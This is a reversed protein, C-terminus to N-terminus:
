SLSKWLHILKRYKQFAYFGLVRVIQVSLDLRKYNLTNKIEPMFSAAKQQFYKVEEYGDEFKNLAVWAIHMYAAAFSRSRLYHYEQPASEFAANLISNFSLEMDSLRKKMGRPTSISLGYPNTRYYTLVERVVKFQYIASVRLWFDWDECAFPFKSFLGVKEICDRRIMPVSGCSITNGQVLKEWVNGEDSFKWIKRLVKDDMSLEASWTYVLGAELNEDLVNVQKELKKPDWLDDSDLFAIYDGESQCIGINRAASQGQNSQSILRVRKDEITKMWDEINDKSGDNVIIVEFDRFTQCLVSNLTRPLFEMSNYAPIIVSVKPM